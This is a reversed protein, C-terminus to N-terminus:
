LFKFGMYRDVLPGISEYMQVMKEDWVVIRQSREFEYTPGPSAPNGAYLDPRTRRLGVIAQHQLVPAVLYEPFMDRLDQAEKARGILSGLNQKIRPWEGAHMEYHGLWEKHRDVLMAPLAPPLTGGPIHKLENVLPLGTPDLFFCKADHFYGEGGTIAKAGEIIEGLEQGLFRAYAEQVNNFVQNSFDATTKPNM